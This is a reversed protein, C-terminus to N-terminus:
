MIRGASFNFFFYLYLCDVIWGQEEGLWPFGSAEVMATWNGEITEGCHSWQEVRREYLGGSRFLGEDMVRDQDMGEFLPHIKRTLCFDKGDYRLMRWGDETTVFGYVEGGGNNDRMDKMALLCQEMAQGLSSWKAEIVLVFNREMVSILDMMVFDEAGGTESDVSVIEKEGLLLDSINAEKLEADAETPYGEIDLYRVIQNYVDKKTKLIADPGEGDLSYKAEALMREVSIAKSVFQGM